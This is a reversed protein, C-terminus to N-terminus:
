AQKLHEEKIEKKYDKLIRLSDLAMRQALEDAEDFAQKFADLPHLAQIKKSGKGEIM